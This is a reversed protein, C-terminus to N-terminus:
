GHNEVLMEHDVHLIKRKQSKLKLINKKLILKYNKFKRDFAAMTTRFIRDRNETPILFYRQM